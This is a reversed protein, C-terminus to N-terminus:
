PPRLPAPSFLLPLLPPSSILVLLLALSRMRTSGAIRNCERLMEHAEEESLAYCGTWIPRIPRVPNEVEVVKSASAPGFDGTQLQFVKQQDYEGNSFWDSMADRFLMIQMLKDKWM